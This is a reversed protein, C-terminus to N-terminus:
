RPCDSLSPFCGCGTSDNGVGDVSVGAHSSTLDEPLSQPETQCNAPLELDRLSRNRVFLPRAAVTTKGVAGFDMVLM